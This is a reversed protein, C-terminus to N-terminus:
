SQLTLTFFNKQHPFFYFANLTHKAGNTVTVKLTIGHCGTFISFAKEELSHKRLLVLVVSISSRLSYLLLKSKIQTPKKPQQTRRMERGGGGDGGNLLNKVALM